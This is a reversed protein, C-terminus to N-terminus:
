LVALLCCVAPLPLQLLMIRMVAAVAVRTAALVMQLFTCVIINVAFSVAEEANARPHMRSPARLELKCLAVAANHGNMMHSAVGVPSVVSIGNVASHSRHPM